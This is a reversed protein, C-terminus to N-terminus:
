NFRILMSNMQAPTTGGAFGCAPDFLFLGERAPLAKSLQDTISGMPKKRNNL